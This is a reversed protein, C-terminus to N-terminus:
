ARKRLRFMTYGGCALGALAMAYTSPEPVPAAKLTIGVPNNPTTISKVPSATAGSLSFESVYNSNFNAVFLHRRNDIALGDPGSLGTSISQILTGDSGLEYVTNSSLSSVFIHNLSDVIVATPNVLSVGAGLTFGTDQTGNPFFKLLTSNTFSTVYVNGFADAAAGQPGALTAPSTPNFSQVFSFSGSAVNTDYSSVASNTWNGSEPIAYGYNPLYLRGSPGGISMRGPIYPGNSQTAGSLVALQNGVANFAILDGAQGFPASGVFVDENASQALGTPSAVNAFTGLRNGTDVSYKGITNTSYESVYLFTEAQSPAAASIFFGAVMLRCVARTILTVPTKHGTPSFRHVIM